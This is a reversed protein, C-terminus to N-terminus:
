GVKKTQLPTVAAPTAMSIVKALGICVTKWENRVARSETKLDLEAPFHVSSFEGVCAPDVEMDISEKGGGDITAAGFNGTQIKSTVGLVAFDYPGKAGVGSVRKIGIVEM